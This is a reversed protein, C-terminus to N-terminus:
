SLVNKFIGNDHLLLYETPYYFPSYPSGKQLFFWKKVEGVECPDVETVTRFLQESNAGAMGRMVQFLSNSVRNSEISYAQRMWLPTSYAYAAFPMHSFTDLRETIWQQNDTCLRFLHEEQLDSNASLDAFLTPTPLNSLVSCCTEVNADLVNWGLDILIIPSTETMLQRRFSEFSQKIVFSRDSIFGVLGDAALKRARLIFGCYLNESLERYNNRLYNLPRNPLDGFPPNMLVVDYRKRCVDIFAFGRAADRAFLRRRTNGETQESYDRLADLIREEAQEWFQTRRGLGSFDFRGQEAEAFLAGQRGVKIELEFAQRAKEVAGAIEEEIKLLSGAEGALEMKEFIQEVLQGLVAPRLGATFERLLDKEGPMPEACVVNSREIRPRDTARVGQELWARQARLWLSLGAIQAARPDIDIGHINYELILRPVDRRFAEYDNRYEARLSPMDAEERELTHTEELAWAEEYIREYLDFAYLGFHMSGCAPDLMRLTRPDKLPRHSIYVPQKLLEEQSLDAQPEAPQEPAQEGPALFIETPRRVLYRCSHVLATQGQTMEYWIRGLTNDTLFEVVYRPTFFQNRVALERSNRPAQSEARMQRREEQSNFYQYIWGITEDQAWLTELDPHNIKTLLELLATERPFLRGTPAYRDFLVALDVAFEDFLSYLYNRYAGGTDGLATGALRAYLQFGKSQYAQGVSELLIGRAEAMRLACLRNLITFAQERVMRDLAERAGGSPSGARYHELTDRLLRATELRASDLHRLADLASVEGTSPDLGYDQQFQRTFEEALLTRAEAVFKQLRNRTSQDFM